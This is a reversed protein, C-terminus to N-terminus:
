GSNRDPKLLERIIRAAEPIAARVPASIDMGMRQFNKVSIAVLHLEPLYGTVTAMRILDRLGFEHASLHPPFDTAFRPHLVRIHGPPYEDLSADVIIVTQYSQLIDLLHIGGTGGDILDAGELGEKELQTVVAIGVGEDNMLINGIGIVLNKKKEIQEM